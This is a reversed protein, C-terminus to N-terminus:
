PEAGDVPLPEGPHMINFHVYLINKRGDM